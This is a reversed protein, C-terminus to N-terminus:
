TKSPLLLVTKYILYVIMLISFYHLYFGIHFSYTGITFPHLVFRIIHLAFIIFLFILVLNFITTSKKKILIINMLLVIFLNIYFFFNDYGMIVKICGEYDTLDVKIFPIFFSVVILTYFLIFLLSNKMMIITKVLM